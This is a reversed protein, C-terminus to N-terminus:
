HGWGKSLLGKYLPVTELTSPRLPFPDLGSIEPEKDDVGVSRGM